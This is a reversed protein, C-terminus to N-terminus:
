LNYRVRMCFGQMQRVRVADLQEAHGVRPLPRVSRDLRVHEQVALDGTGRKWLHRSTSLNIPLYGVMTAIFGGVEKWCGFQAQSLAPPLM